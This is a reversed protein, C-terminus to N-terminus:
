GANLFNGMDPREESSKRLAMLASDVITDPAGALELYNRAYQQMENDNNKLERLNEIRRLPPEEAALHLVVLGLSYVDRSPLVLCNTAYAEPAAYIDTSAQKHIRDTVALLVSCGFDAIKAIIGEDHSPATFLLINACKVDNHVIDCEHLAGLGSVIDRLLKTKINWDLQGAKRSLHAELSGLDAFETVLGFHAPLHDAVAIGMLNLINNHKALRHHKMICIEVFAQSITQAAIGEAQESNQFKMGSRSLNKVAVSFEAEADHEKITKYIIEGFGGGGIRSGLPSLFGEPVVFPVKLRDLLWMLASSTFVRTRQSPEAFDNELGRIAPLQASVPSIRYLQRSKTLSLENEIFFSMSSVGYM